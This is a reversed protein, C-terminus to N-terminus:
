KAPAEATVEKYSKIRLVKKGGRETAVGMVEVKKGDEKEIAKGEPNRAVQYITEDEAKLEVGTVEGKSDKMVVVTGRITIKEKAVKEIKKEVTAAGEEAAKVSSAIGFVSVAVLVVVLSQILKMKKRKQLRNKILGSQKFLNRKGSFKGTKSWGSV